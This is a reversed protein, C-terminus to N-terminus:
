RKERELCDIEHRIAKIQEHVKFADGDRKDDIMKQHVVLLRSEQHRLFGIDIKEVIVQINRIDTHSRISGNRDFTVVFSHGCPFSVVTNIIGSESALDHEFTKCRYKTDCTPCAYICFRHIPVGTQKDGGVFPENGILEDLAGDVDDHEHAM